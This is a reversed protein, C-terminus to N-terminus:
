EYGWAQFAAECERRIAGQREVSFAPYSRRGYSGISEVHRRFATEADEFGPLALESYVWRLTEVPRTALADYSIEVLHESSVKERQQLYRQVLYRYMALFEEFEPLPGDRLCRHGLVVQHTHLVSQLVENPHRHILVFRAGPFLQALRAAETMYTSSRLLLPRGYKFHLEQVYSELVELWLNSRAQLDAVAQAPTSTHPWLWRQSHEFRTLVALADADEAPAGAGLGVGDQLRSGGVLFEVWRTLMPGLTRCTHPFRVDVLTPFAFRHDQALLQHLFTTGSRWTGLLFLPPHISVGEIQRRSRRRELAAFLSNVLSLVSVV